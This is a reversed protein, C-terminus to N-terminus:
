KEIGTLKILTKTLTKKLITDLVIVLCDKCLLFEEDIKLNKASVKTCYRCEGSYAFIDMITDPLSSGYVYTPWSSITYSLGDYTNASSMVSNSMITNAADMFTDGNTIM